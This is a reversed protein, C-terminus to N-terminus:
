ALSEGSKFIRAGPDQRYFSKLLEYVAPYHKAVVEPAEFFSESLVAFFEAPSEAAYPDIASAGENRAITGQLYEFALSFERTWLKVDMDRHLPPMGNAAGNRMDLKHAFEHIV